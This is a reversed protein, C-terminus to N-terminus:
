KSALRPSRRLKPYGPVPNITLRWHAPFISGLAYHLRTPQDQCWVRVNVPRHWGDYVPVLGLEHWALDLIDQAKWRNNTDAIDIESVYPGGPGPAITLYLDLACFADSFGPPCANSIVVM